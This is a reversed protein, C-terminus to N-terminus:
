RHLAECASAMKSKRWTCGGHPVRSSSGGRWVAQVVDVALYQTLKSPRTDAARVAIRPHYKHLVSM